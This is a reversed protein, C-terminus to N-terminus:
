MDGVSFESYHFFTGLTDITLSELLLTLLGVLVLFTLSRFNSVPTHALGPHHLDPRNSYDSRSKTFFSLVIEQKKYKKLEQGGLDLKFRYFLSASASSNRVFYIPKLHSQPLGSPQPLRSSDPYNPRTMSLKLREPKSLM